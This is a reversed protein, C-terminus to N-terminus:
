DGSVSALFCRLCCYDKLVDGQFSTVKKKKQSASSQHLVVSLKWSGATVFQLNERQTMFFVYVFVASTQTRQVLRSCISDDGRTVSTIVGM